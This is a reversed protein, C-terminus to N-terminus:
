FPSDKDPLLGFTIGVQEWSWQTGCIPCYPGDILLHFFQQKGNERCVDCTWHLEDEKFLLGARVGRDTLCVPCMVVDTGCPVVGIWDHGCGICHCPGSTHPQAAARREELDGVIQAQRDPMPGLDAATVETKARRRAALDIVNGTM